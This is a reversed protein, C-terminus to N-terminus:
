YTWGQVVIELFSFNMDTIAHPVYFVTVECNDVLLPFVHPLPVIEHRYLSGLQVRWWQPAGRGGWSTSFIERCLARLLCLQMTSNADVYNLM